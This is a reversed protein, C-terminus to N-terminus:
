GYLTSLYKTHNEPYDAIIGRFLMLWKIKTISIPQKKKLPPPSFIDMYYAVTPKRKNTIM